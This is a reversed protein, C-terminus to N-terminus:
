NRYSNWQQGPESLHALLQFHLRAREEELERIREAQWGNELEEIRQFQWFIVWQQKLWAEQYRSLHREYYRSLLYCIILTTLIASIIILM